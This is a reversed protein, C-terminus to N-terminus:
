PLFATSLWFARPSLKRRAARREVPRLLSREDSPPGQFLLAAGAEWLAELTEQHLGREVHVAARSGARSAARAIEVALEAAPADGMSSDAFHVWARAAAAAALDSALPGVHYVVFFAGGKKAAAAMATLAAPDRRHVRDSIHFDVGQRLLDEIAPFPVPAAGEPSPLPGNWFVALHTGSGRCAEHLIEWEDARPRAVETTLLRARTRALAEVEDLGFRGTDLVSLPIGRREAYRAAELLAAFEFQDDRIALDQRTRVRDLLEYIEVVGTIGKEIPRESM